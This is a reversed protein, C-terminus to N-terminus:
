LDRVLSQTVRRRYTIRLCIIVRSCSHCRLRTLSATKGQCQQQRLGQNRAAADGLAWPVWGATGALAGCAFPIIGTFGGSVAFLVDHPQFGAWVRRHFSCRLQLAAPPSVEVGRGARHGTSWRVSGGTGGASPPRCTSGGRAPRPPYHGSFHLAEQEQQLSYVEVTVQPSGLVWTVRVPPLCRLASPGHGCNKTNLMKAPCFRSPPPKLHTYHRNWSRAFLQHRQPGSLTLLWALLHCCTHNMQVSLGNPTAREQQPTEPNLLSM